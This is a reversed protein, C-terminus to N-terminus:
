VYVGSDNRLIIQEHNNANNLLKVRYYDKDKFSVSVDYNFVDDNNIVELKGDLQYAKLDNVKNILDMKVNKTNNQGCGVLFLCVLLFIIFFKKRMYGRKM